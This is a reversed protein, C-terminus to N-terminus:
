KGRAIRLAKELVVDKGSLYDAIEPIAEVEPVVGRGNAHEGNVALKYTVLPIVVRLGSNPLVLTVGNGSNNGHYAGGSEEGVFTARKKDHLQTILEATTSFSGGNILAIVKGRFTPMAPQQLGLNPHGRLSFLGDARATLMPAPVAAPGDVHEAFSLSARKVTLEEYYSFPADVLHAYVLKGLRDEGGGNDRLDLLLTQAGSAAIKEFAKKLIVAGEDDEEQDTFNFVQLRAIKGEDLLSLEAFRHSHQDQPYRNASAQRLAALTQGPLTATEPRAGRLALTFTGQMGFQTFLDEKFKRAVRQARGTAIFGDGPAAATLREIVSGIGVGNISVIERGALKGAGDFDRLIYLRGRVLKVDLPLLLAQEMEAKLAPSLLVATHGCRLAAVAPALIRQFDRAEMPRDLTRAVGDFVRDLEAKSTYRYIGGHAEELAQRALQFDSQLQAATLPAALAGAMATAALLGGAAKLCLSAM